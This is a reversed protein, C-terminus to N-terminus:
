PILRNTKAPTSQPQSIHRLSSLKLIADVDGPDILRLWPASKFADRVHERRQAGAM